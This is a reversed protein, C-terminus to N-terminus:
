STRSNFAPPPVLTPAARPPRPHISSSSSPPILNPTHPQTYSSSPHVLHLLLHSIYLWTMTSFTSSDHTHHSSSLLPYIYHWPICLLGLTYIIGHILPPDTAGIPTAFGSSPPTNYQYLSRGPMSYSIRLCQRDLSPCQEQSPLSLLLPPLPLSAPVM